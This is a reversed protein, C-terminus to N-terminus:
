IGGPSATAEVFCRAMAIELVFVSTSGTIWSRLANERLSEIAARRSARVKGELKELQVTVAAKSRSESVVVSEAM